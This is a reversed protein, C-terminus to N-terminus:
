INRELWYVIVTFTITHGLLIKLYQLFWREIKTFKYSQYYTIGIMVSCSSLLSTVLLSEWLSLNTKVHLYKAIVAISGLAIPAKFTYDRYTFNIVKQQSYFDVAVFFLFFSFFSSGIVFSKLYKNM